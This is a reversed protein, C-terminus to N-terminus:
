SNGYPVSLFILLYNWDLIYIAAADFILLFIRKQLYNSDLDSTAVAALIVLFVKKQLYVWGLNFIAVALLILLCFYAKALLELAFCINRGCRFGASFFRRQLYNGGSEFIAAAAFIVVFYSKCIIGVCILYQM